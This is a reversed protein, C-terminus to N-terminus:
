VLRAFRKPYVRSKGDQEYHIHEIWQGNLSPGVGRAVRYEIKTVTVVSGLVKVVSGVEIGPKSVAVERLPKGHNEDAVKKLYAAFDEGARIRHKLAQTLIFVAQEQQKLTGNAFHIETSNKGYGTVITKPKIKGAEVKAATEKLEAVSSLVAEIVKDAQVRSVQVPEYHQGSCVGNFWGNNVTYGHKSSYGRVVAQDNGCCQCNGRIQINVKSMKMEEPRVMGGIHTIYDIVYVFV